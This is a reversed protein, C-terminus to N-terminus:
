ASLEVWVPFFVDALLIVVLWALLIILMSFAMTVLATQLFLLAIDKSPTVLHLVWGVASIILISSMVAKGTPTILRPNWTCDERRFATLVFQVWAIAIIASLYYQITLVIQPHQFAASFIVVTAPAFPVAVRPVIIALREKMPQCLGMNEIAEHINRIAESKAKLVRAVAISIGVWPMEDNQFFSYIEIIVSLCLTKLSRWMDDRRFHPLAEESENR